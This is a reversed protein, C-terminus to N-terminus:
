PGGSVLGFAQRPGFCALTNYLKYFKVKQFFFLNCLRSIQSKKKTFFDFDTLISNKSRRGGM